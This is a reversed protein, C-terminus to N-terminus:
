PAFMKSYISDMLLNMEPDYQKKVEAFSAKIPEEGKYLFMGSYHFDRGMRIEVGKAKYGPNNGAKLADLCSNENDFPEGPTLLKLKKYVEHMISLVYGALEDVTRKRVNLVHHVSIRFTDKAAEGRRVNHTDPYPSRHSVPEFRDTSMALINEIYDIEFDKLDSYQNELVSKIDPFVEKLNELLM